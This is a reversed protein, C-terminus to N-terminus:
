KKPRFLLFVVRYRHAKPPENSAGEKTPQNTTTARPSCRALCRNVKNDNLGDDEDDEDNEDDEVEHDEDDDDDVVENDEDDEDDEVEDDVDDDDEDLNYQYCCCDM